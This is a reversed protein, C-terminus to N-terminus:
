RSLSTASRISLPTNRVVRSWVKPVMLAALRLRACASKSLPLDRPLITSSPQYRDLCCPQDSRRNLPAQEMSGPHSDGFVGARIPPSVSSLLSAEVHYPHKQRGRYRRGTHHATSRDSRCLT